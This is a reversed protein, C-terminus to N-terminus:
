EAKKKAIGPLKAQIKAVVAKTQDRAIGVYHDIQTKYKEYVIPVSFVLLEGLILLTIGNFVAGVYTMLWMLVALKLSDVLDEVLFLRIILKLAKNVHVMAANVYNHFAESSLAIDVDLYAKFPHGEESKQVAQIVSRYVRFSITISLLALILYSAVSIVSFAALSLLMILTTGFVLGTKKVDRWFILDHVSFHTLLRTLFHENVQETKSLSSMMEVETTDQPIGSDLGTPMKVDHEKPINQSREPWSPEPAFISTTLDAPTQILNEGFSTQVSEQSPKIKEDRRGGLEKLAKITLQEQELDLSAVLTSQNPFENQLENDEPSQNPAICKDNPDRVRQMVRLPFPTKLDTDKEPAGDFANVEALVKNTQTESLTGILDEPSDDSKNERTSYGRLAGSTERPCLGTRETTFHKLPVIVDLDGSLKKCKITGDTTIGESRLIENLPSEGHVQLTQFDDVSERFNGHTKSSVGQSCKDKIERKNEEIITSHVGIPETQITVGDTEQCLLEESDRKDSEFSIDTTIDEIVTDDSEGSSDAEVLELLVSNQGNLEIKLPDDPLVIKENIGKLGSSAWKGGQSESLRILTGGGKVVSERMGEISVKKISDVSDPSVKECLSARSETSPNSEHISHIPIKQINQHACIKPPSIPIESTCENGDSKSVQAVDGSSKESQKVQSILDWSMIENTFNHMDSVCRSVEELAATTRSFQRTLLASAPYPREERNRLPFMRSGDQSNDTTIEPDNHMAWSGLEVTSERYSDKFEQDFTAKDIIVEFPSEPSDKEVSVGGSVESPFLSHQGISDTESQKVHLKQDKLLTFKVDADSAAEEEKAPGEIQDKLEQDTSLHQKTLGTEMTLFAPHEPFSTPISPRGCPVETEPDLLGGTPTEIASDGESRPLGEMKESTIDAFGNKGEGSLDPQLNLGQNKGEHVIMDTNDIGASSLFSTMIESTGKESCLSSFGESALIQFLFINVSYLACSGPLCLLMSKIKFRHTYVYVHAVFCLECEESLGHM